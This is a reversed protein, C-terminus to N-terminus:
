PVAHTTRHDAHDAIANVVGAFVTYAANWGPLPGAFTITGASTSSASRALSLIASATGGITRGAGVAVATAPKASSFRRFSGAGMTTAPKTHRFRRLSGTGVATTGM